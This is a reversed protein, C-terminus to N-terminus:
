WRPCLYTHFSRGGIESDRGNKLEFVIGTGMGVELPDIADVDRIRVAAM